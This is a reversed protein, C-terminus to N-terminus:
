RVQRKPVTRARKLSLALGGLAILGLLSPESVDVSGVNLSANQLTVDVESFTGFDFVGDIGNNIFPVINGVGTGTVKFSVSGLFMDMSSEFLSGNFNSVGIHLVNSPAPLVLSGAGYNARLLGLDTFNVVGDNNFDYNPDTTFFVERMGVLDALGVIGDGTGDTTVTNSANAEVVSSGFSPDLDPSSSLSQFELPAGTFDLSIAATGLFDAEVDLLIDLELIDNIEADIASTGTVGTGSTNSWVLKVVASNVFSSYSLTLLIISIFTAYKKFM